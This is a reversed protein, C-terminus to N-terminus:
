EAQAADNGSRSSLVGGTLSRSTVESVVGTLSGTL